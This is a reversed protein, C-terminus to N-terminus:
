GQTLFNRLREGHEAERARAFAEEDPTLAGGDYTACAVGLAACLAEALGREWAARAAGAPVAGIEGLSIAHDRLTQAYAARGAEDLPLVESLREHDPTLPISGHQVFAGRTRRQASGVVKRTGHALESKASSAFCPPAPADAGQDQRVPNGRVMDLDYARLAEGWAEGIRAYSEALTACWPAADRRALISYTLEDAHLVARGGTPRIVFDWGRARLAAADLEREPRQFHGLSVCWPKWAYLRLTPPSEGAEVARLIAADVAMNRAGTQPGDFLLRWPSSSTPSPFTM